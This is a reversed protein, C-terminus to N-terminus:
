QAPKPPPDLRHGFIQVSDHERVAWVRLEGPLRSAPSLATEFAGDTTPKVITTQTDYDGRGKDPDVYFILGKIPRGWKIQGKVHVTGTPDRGMGFRVLSVDNTRMVPEGGGVAWTSSLRLAETATLITDVKYGQLRWGYSHNGSGMLAYGMTKREQPTEGNHPLTLAHGLEHAIGGIYHTNFAGVTCPEGYYGGSAKSALNTADLLPDDYCTCMGSVSTWAGCYSAVEVANSGEWKLGRQFVVLTEKAADVGQRALEAFVLSRVQGYSHRGYAAQPEPGRVEYLKLKGPEKEELEFTLPGYGNREMERRYFAQVHKMTRLLREERDPYPQCDAPTFYVCKLPRHGNIMPDREDTVRLCDIDPAWAQDPAVFTIEHAGASLDLVTKVTVFYGRCDSTEVCAKRVGDVHIFFSRDGHSILRSELTWSGGHPVNVGKWGFAMGLGFWQVLKGGWADGWACIRAQQGAANPTFTASEAEYVTSVASLVGAVCACLAILCGKVESKKM